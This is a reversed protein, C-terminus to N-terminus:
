RKVVCFLIAQAIMLDQNKAVNSNDRFDNIMKSVLQYTEYTPYSTYKIDFDLYKAISKVTTPKVFVYKNRDQYAKFVSVVPWKASNSNKVLNKTLSLSYVFQNFSEESYNHLFNYLANAFEENTKTYSVFNKFVIKEFVSVVTAKKIVESAIDCIVDYQKLALLHDLNEKSLDDNILNIVRTPDHKKGLRKWEDDNTGNPFLELFQNEILKYNM